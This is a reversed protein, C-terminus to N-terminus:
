DKSLVLVGAKLLQDSLLQRILPLIEVALQVKLIDVISSFNCALQKFPNYM